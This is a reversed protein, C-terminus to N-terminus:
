AKCNQAVQKEVVPLERVYDMEDYNVREGTKPDIRYMRQRDKLAQLNGRASECARQKDQTDASKQDSKAAADKQDAQRKRFEADRDALTQPAAGKASDGKAVPAPTVPKNKVGTDQQKTGAPCQTAFEIKGDKGVCKLIQAQAGFACFALLMGATGNTVAVAIKM